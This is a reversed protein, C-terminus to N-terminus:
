TKWRIDIHDENYVIIGDVYREILHLDERMEPSGEGVMRVREDTEGIQRKLRGIVEEKRELEARLSCFEPQKGQAYLLYSEYHM